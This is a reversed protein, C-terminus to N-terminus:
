NKRFIIGKQKKIDKPFGDMPFVDIYLGMNSETVLFHEKCITRNDVLKIFPFTDCYKYDLCSINSAVEKECVLKRFKEYDPRPMTVDIDNDWPIFGKHRVAGLLTGYALHYRLNNEDCYKAFEVLVKFEIKKAEENNISRM